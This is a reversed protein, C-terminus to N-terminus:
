GDLSCAPEKQERLWHKTALEPLPKRRTRQQLQSSAPASGKHSAAPTGQRVIKSVMARRINHAKAVETLTM